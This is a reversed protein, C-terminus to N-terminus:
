DAGGNPGAGEIPGASSTGGGFACKDAVPMITEWLAEALSRNEAFEYVLMRQQKERVCCGLLQILNRHKIGTINVMERFFEATNQETPNLKKVAVIIGDALVAIIYCCMASADREDELRTWCRTTSSGAVALGLRDMEKFLSEITAARAQEVM